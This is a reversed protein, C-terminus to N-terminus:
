FDTMTVITMGTMMLITMGIMIMITMGIMTVIMMGTTMGITMAAMMATTMRTTAATMMVIIITTIMTIMAIKGSMATEGLLRAFITKMNPRAKPKLDNASLLATLTPCDFKWSALARDM